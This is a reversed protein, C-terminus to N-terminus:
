KAHEGLRQAFRYAQKENFGFLYLAGSLWNRRAVFSDYQQASDVIKMNAVIWTQRYIYTRLASVLSELMVADCLEDNLQTFCNHSLELKRLEPLGFLEKPLTALKNVSADLRVLQRLAGIQPPLETLANDRIQATRVISISIGTLGNKPAKCEAGDPGVSQRHGCRDDAACELQSGAAHPQGSEM